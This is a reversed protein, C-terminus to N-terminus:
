LIRQPDATGRNMLDTDKSDFFDGAAFLYDLVCTLAERKRLGNRAELSSPRRAPRRIKQTEIATPFQVAGHVARSGLTDVM